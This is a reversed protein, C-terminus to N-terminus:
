TQAPWLRPRSSRYVAPPQRCHNLTPGEGMQAHTARTWAWRVLREPWNCAAQRMEHGEAHVGTSGSCCTTNGTPDRHWSSM